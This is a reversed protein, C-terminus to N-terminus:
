GQSEERERERSLAPTLATRGRDFARVLLQVTGFLMVVALFLSIPWYSLEVFEAGEGREYLGPLERLQWYAVIGTFAAGCLSGFADCLARVRPSYREYLTETRIHGDTATSYPIAVVFLALLALSAIEQSWQFPHNFVYRGVVDFAVVVIILPLFVFAAIDRLLEPLRVNLWPGGLARAELKAPALGQAQAESSDLIPDSM